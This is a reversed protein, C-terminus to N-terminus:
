FASAFAEPRKRQVGECTDNQPGSLFYFGKSCTIGGKLAERSDTPNTCIVPGSGNPIPACAAVSRFYATRYLRCALIRM